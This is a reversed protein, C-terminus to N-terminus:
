AHDALHPGAEPRPAPIGELIQRVPAFTKRHLDCPGLARLARLHNPSGYGKHSSFGYGPFLTDYQVMLRDRTVKAVVSAAAISLSRCDGKVLAEYPWPGRGYPLGDVLVYHPVPHDHRRCLDEVARQMALWSAQRINLVEIERADCQGTGWLAGRCIEEFLLERTDEKLQKSDNLLAFSASQFDRPLRVAGAVVPGALPGRGAEDTGFILAYGLARLQDEREFSPLSLTQPSPRGKDAPKIKGKLRATAM